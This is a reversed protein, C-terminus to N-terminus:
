EAGDGADDEVRVEPALQELRADLVEQPSLEPAKEPAKAKARLDVVSGSAVFKGLDEDAEECPSDFYTGPPWVFPGVRLRVDVVRYRHKEPKGGCSCPTLGLERVDEIGDFVLAAPHSGRHLTCEIDEKVTWAELKSPLHDFRLLHDKFTQLMEGRIKFARLCSERGRELVPWAGDTLKGTQRDSDYPVKEELTDTLGAIVLTTRATLVKTLEERGQLFAVHSTQIAAIQLAKKLERERQRFYRMREPPSLDRIVMEEHGGLSDGVLVELAEIVADATDKM